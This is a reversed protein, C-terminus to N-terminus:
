YELRIGLRIQRPPGYFFPVTQLNGASQYREYYDINIAKYLEIYGPQNVLDGSLQPNSIYGDDTASGTRLFVNEVNKKDFLNIVFLYINVNLQDFLKFSKDLRLDVQFTSPTTSSNLPEVPRRDRADGELDSGGVGRTFPHGSTFQALMSVGFQELFSPGDDVGFRYDININGNVDNNYELPSVYAPKFITVGDLPAGVIGRNSNPFSGTGQADQLSLSANITVREVRRMNFTLELGKTTAFDGNKYINYGKFQSTKATSQLDLIVQDKIDRYYGTIDFSAFSGIQQTFGLEYQTTRTPRVNFGVPSGIFLGGRLQSSTATLGQYIDSLQSQQVFKGFQAHFVTQDTVPFSLGIRPSIGSYSPVKRFGEPKIDGTNFDFSLDPLSPNILEYNDTNIYDFRVGLNLILDKLDIKDQIYASAFVPHKAAFFGGNTENGIVDYGFADPGQGTIIEEVTRTGPDAILQALSFVRENNWAYRRMTYRQYDGGIKITHEKGALLSLAAGASFSTRRDKQYGALVDGFGNFSFGYVDTRSPRTYRSPFHFGFPANAASDGYSLFNDKLFPDFRDSSYYFYGGTLEYFMNSSLIHTIKLSASGNMIDQQEIRAADFISAINGPNRHTGQARHTTNNSLIGTLRVIFPQLDATFTGTYSFTEAANGRVAGAPYNLYITDPQGNTTAIYPGLNNIGPYPQPNADRQFIYNMLGFFRFKENIIPGSITGVQENYGFWYAGLRKEGSFADDKSKFGINDTIYEYSAKFARTGTKLQQRIIGANANGYEATYGGAQVQIEEVADQPITVASGGSYPNNINVGELYFGVEDLRGGRIFVIDDKLVVGATLGIVNNIGRVPLAEIDDSTTVRVANTNDKQILPKEAIVEVEGVSIGEAPLEFNLETTLDTNVRVQFTTVSQYGIYSARVDYTGADLNRIEYVGNLDAAAGFSTGVVVINAGILPEGTQLDTVKGKINAASLYAPLILLFFIVTFIKKM